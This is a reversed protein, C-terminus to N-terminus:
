RGFFRRIILKSKLLWCRVGDIEGTQDFLDASRRGAVSAKLTELEKEMQRQQALVKEIREAVEPLAV